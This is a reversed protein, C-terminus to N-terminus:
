CCELTWTKGGDRSARRLRRGRGDVQWPHRFSGLKRWIGSGSPFEVQWFSLVHISSGRGDTLARVAFEKARNLSSFSRDGIKVTCDVICAEIPGLRKYFGRLRLGNPWYINCSQVGSGSCTVCSWSTSRPASPGTTIFRQIVDHACLEGPQILQLLMMYQDLNMDTSRFM